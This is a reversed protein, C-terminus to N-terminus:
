SWLAHQERVGFCELM